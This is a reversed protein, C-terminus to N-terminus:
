SSAENDAQVRNSLEVQMGAKVEWISSVSSSADGHTLPTVGAGFLAQKSTLKKLSARSLELFLEMHPLVIRGCRNPLATM